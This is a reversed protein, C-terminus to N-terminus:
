IKYLEVSADRAPEASSCLATVPRVSTALVEIPAVPPRRIKAEIPATMNKILLYQLFLFTHNDM